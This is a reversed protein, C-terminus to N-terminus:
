RQKFHRLRQTRKWCISRTDRSPSSSCPMQKQHPSVKSTSLTLAVRSLMYWPILKLAVRRTLKFFISSDLNELWSQKNNLCQLSVVTITSVPGGDWPRIKTKKQQKNRETRRTHTQTRRQSSTCILHVSLFQLTFGQALLQIQSQVVHSGELRERRRRRMRRKRTRDTKRQSDSMLHQGAGTETIQLPLTTRM